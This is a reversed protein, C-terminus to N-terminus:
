FLASSFRRRYQKTIEHEDGLWLFLAVCAKRAGDHDLQRNRYLVEIWAEIADAYRKEKLARIGNLYFQWAQQQGPHESAAASLEEDSTILRYLTTLAEAHNALSHDIPVDQILKMAETTNENFLLKALMIRADYNMPDNDVAEKFLEQALGRNGNELARKGAELLKKSETPLNEDLWAVIQAEPLAGIFEAIMEGEHFMIVAPISQINYTRILEPFEETNVKVLHWRNQAQNALKELIPGLLRCPGCWEAWFDVVVPAAFSTKIVDEQFDRCNIIM